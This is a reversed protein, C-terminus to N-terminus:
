APVAFELDSYRADSHGIGVGSGDGLALILVSSDKLHQLLSAPRPVQQPVSGPPVPTRDPQVPPTLRGQGYAQLAEWGPHEVVQEVM